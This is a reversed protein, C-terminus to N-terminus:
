RNFIDSRLTNLHFLPNHELVNVNKKFNHSSTNVNLLKWLEFLVTYFDYFYIVFPKTYEHM